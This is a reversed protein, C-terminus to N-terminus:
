RTYKSSLTFYIDFNKILLFIKIKFIIHNICSFFKFTTLRHCRIM